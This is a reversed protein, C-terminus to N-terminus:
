FLDVGYQFLAHASGCKRRRDAAVGTVAPESVEMQAAARRRGAADLFPPALPVDLPAARDDVRRLAVLRHVEGPVALVAVDDVRAVDVLRAVSARKLGVREADGAGVRGLLIDVRAAAVVGRSRPGAATGVGRQRLRVRLQDRQQRAPLFARDPDLFTLIM